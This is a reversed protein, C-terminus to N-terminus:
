GIILYNYTSSDSATGAVTFGTGPTITKVSPVAGVSGGVTKLTPIISSNATVNTNAVVVPTVGNIVFTGTNTVPPSSAVGVMTITAAATGTVVYLAWTGAPVLTIGSVTVGTGGTLTAPANTTNQYWFVTSAGVKAVLAPNGAIIAAATDTTDTFATNSQSGSRTLYGGNVAAALLTGAGVTSLTTVAPATNAQATALASNFLHTFTVTPSASTGGVTGYMWETQYPGIVNTAPLTVGSGATLTALFGVSNKIRVFFTAGSVFSPLAAVINAATDTTDTYPATPGSRNIVGGVLGAATLTGNGVTTINTNLITASTGEASLAAIAATTTQEQTAAPSGNSLIGTVLLLENGQLAM